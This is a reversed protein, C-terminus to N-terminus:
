RGELRAMAEVIMVGPMIPNGPYHGIFFHENFTVNKIGVVRKGEELETIRDVMLFPYRHPLVKMIERIQM